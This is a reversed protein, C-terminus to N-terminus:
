PAGQAAPMKGAAAEFERMGRRTRWFNLFFAPVTSLTNFLLVGRVTSVDLLFILLVQTAVGIPIMLWPSVIWGRVVNLQWMCAVIAFSVASLVMLFLERDLHAYKPGLVWLLLDPVLAALLLLSLSLGASASLIQWYRKWLVHSDQVRAFSPFVVNGLVSWFMAFLVALRGLAGVEAVGSASGFVAILWVTLQSQVCYYISNPAQARVISMIERRDAPHPPAKLDAMEPVWRRLVIEQMALSIAAAFLAVATNLFTYYAIILLLLRLASYWAYLNQIRNLASHLRPVPMLVGITLQFYLSLLVAATIAGAYSITAGNDHLMWFLLPTVVTISILAFARRLKMATVILQGFRFRDGWVRGGIASIGSGIGNDALLNMTALMTNAVTFLAYDNKTLARVILIGCAFTLAQVLVELSLFRTLLRTWNSMQPSRVADRFRGVTGLPIRVGGM